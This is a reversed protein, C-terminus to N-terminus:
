PHFTNQARLFARLARSTGGGPPHTESSLGDVRFEKTSSALGDRTRGLTARGENDRHSSHVARASYIRHRHPRPTMLVAPQCVHAADVFPAVARLGLRREVRGPTRNTLVHQIIFTAGPIVRVAHRM